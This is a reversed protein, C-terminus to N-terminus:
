NDRRCQYRLIVSAGINYYAALFRGTPLFTPKLKTCGALLTNGINQSTILSAVTYTPSNEQIGRDLRPMVPAQVHGGWVREVCGLVAVISPLPGYPRRM